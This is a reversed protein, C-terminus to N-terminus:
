AGPSSVVPPLRLVRWRGATLWGDQATLPVVIGGDEAPDSLAGLAIKAAAGKVAGIRGAQVLSDILARHGRVTMTVAALPRFRRDLSLAGEADVALAGWRLALSDIEVKGGDDRWATLGEAGASAPLPAVVIDWTLRDVVAGLSISPALPLEARRVRGTLRFADVAKAGKERAGFVVASQATVSGALGDRSAAVDKLAAKLSKLESDAIEFSATLGDARATTRSAGNRDKVRWEHGGSLRVAVVGPEWIRAQARVAAGRWSWALPPGAAEVLVSAARVDFRLPYGGVTFGEIEVRGGRERVDDSWGAITDEVLSVGARWYWAHVILLLALTVSTAATAVKAFRSFAM